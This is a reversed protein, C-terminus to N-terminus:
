RFHITPMRTELGTADRFHDTLGDCYIGDHTSIEKLKTGHINFFIVTYTDDADLTIRVGNIRHRTINGPLRFSLSRESGVFQRAGTMAVFKRGGLQRLIENPITLDSM